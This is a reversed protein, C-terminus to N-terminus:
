RGTWRPKRGEAFAEPGERADDSALMRDYEPVRGERLATLAENVSLHTTDRMIALVAAVALPAMVVIQEAMARAQDMPSGTEAVRNVLGLAMAEHATLRRATLILDKVVSSPLMRSLRITGTDPIVGVALESLFFEAHEAAVVLDAAIALEFGGGVALGNVAAIIPKNLGPLETFGGFGGPGYDAGYEEGAAAAKLDWGASFFREGAGTFIAVRLSPDDRFGSFVAGLERSTAADIANAKPRDLVVELIPGNITAHVSM